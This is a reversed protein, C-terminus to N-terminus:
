PQLHELDALLRPHTLTWGLTARTHASSSPQDMAFISGFPGFVDEPVTRVPLGLRRGIVAAIDHVADGEDDVAHWSTGPPASELALRFLVAADRAHVAPWRQTGDGPYGAVGTRRATETLLGAFGGRGEDHVTRPMRVATSRVGRSALALVANVARGRGGVPGDTPLPDAETSPRGPVWPTGSVTVFPRDSGVLEEGLAALAAAEEAVGRALADASGYDRGFALSIVGDARAAGARLVDLDALSGRLAEAGAATVARASEDSRALALVTHGAAILEALVPGGITGTGGTLFVHM